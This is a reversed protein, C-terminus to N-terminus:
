MWVYTNVDVSKNLWTNVDVCVSIWLCVNVAMPVHECGCVPKCMRVNVDM